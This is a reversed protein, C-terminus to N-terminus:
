RGGMRVPLGERPTVGGLWAERSGEGVGAQAGGGRGGGLFGPAATPPRETKSRQGGRQWHSVGTALPTGGTQM